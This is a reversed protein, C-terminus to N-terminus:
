TLLTDDVDEAKGEPQIAIKRLVKTIVDSLSERAGADLLSMCTQLTEDGHRLKLVAVLSLESNAKVYINKEKTGNVLMPIAAKLFEPALVERRGMYSCVRAVLQKVENSQHNMSRDAALYSLLSKHIKDKYENTYVTNPTEKLPLLHDNLTTALQEPSLWRTIAGVCGAAGTRTADESHSLMGLLSIHIPKRVADSMKDGAASVVGRLAQMMTERVAPDEVTKVATHLETFLPDARTHITILHGLATAAKLRVQRNGDNLAKLFTTQLQPLFQKLMVGVKALLIALTHLVAAKVGPPFRDGLIRILPGTIHVVSPQLSQATTLAIVEGLGQSAAEKVEPTGNLVAERFIPLIPTIGKPLCLGPLLAGPKLDSVAFKIAQRIDSVYIVQQSPDLTKTVASLADWSMQLVTQDTDTFLHILGRLLQPVHQSYDARTHTCFACLLTAAARRSEVKECRGVELLHDVIARIGVEDSVSLVVTQCYELEQLSGESVALATLLAPLIKHLYKTLAEGAVSALISLAKTNVPTATLQPVLYPLVVRSKIAMVQRLGDLTWEAIGPSPNNLQQLMPPLIDDLAKVGVTSHLSDFTKAAAQRVEPLPDCLAKRVTPVLSNVFTLVMDRSTSAMMESLGICVGQRQDPQDSELGRELIPIIEPLVREGLKRVLDGLTKAAVQRKDHSTSALCGLLLSFLTPLIERLTRPTNTVVVKWVHLAAQRVLLAVDSRGMYLGALVRNRRKLGLATIIAKHSQETGFNDDENATETSMKGSVGSIRYLLDGLLQVSSYRIRWNEDFLGKELEPLLLTIASDAYLNVIRQGAKLATDRVYENEDALAKLIPIIIEGIYPTFENTFVVPMYIFMMIYGDKVHPAIDTRQATTIIEPMLKHLKEVGLGGVVESLGQAAGSRDVSSAESTLTKMLWPLLDEFSSEGMGRVMAGLARASVSRVEPVPDLLSTKLGPIITPLYPTLDKQDTLSYMNGIIQAAMKRTETSRDMFARQVVPMILALSPADIFHVFQTDLLTQLCTATRNSPDQIEPNRIVSGILKLAQAGATQVKVHSDSLVEILKPVISPLCSSLQKPACYAMAGLLEVSGERHRYNKKDQIADTLTVMIDLQKLALIGMGKVIGALGYAAGKRQGLSESSLLQDLLKQVLAPAEEKISPVLAPLCNAVAKGHLDVAALAAALMNNRVQDNRDGLGKEVYFKALNSVSKPTLLPALQALALAVGNRPEWTDIPKEVIRGLSDVRAPVMNNKENYINLLLRLVLDTSPPQSQQLLAALANSGAQQVAIVPHVIDDLLSECLGKDAWSLNASQWLKDAVDRNEEVVDHKAVWVRRTIRLAQDRNQKPKPLVPVLACMSRLAADRVYQSSHQLAALLSDIEEDTAVACGEGGSAATAVDLLAASAQQQVRGITNSIVDILLLMMQRRPLIKPSHLDQPGGSSRLKAQTSLIHICTTLLPSTSSVSNITSQILPLVYSLGPATLGSGIKDLETIAWKMAKELDQQEWAPDLTCKPRLLRLTIHAVRDITVPSLSIGIFAPDKLVLYLQSLYKASLPSSLGRVTPPVIVPLQAGLPLPSGHCASIVIRFAKYLKEEAQTLRSRIAAEKELQLRMAEKQKPTLEPETIKGQKRKKDELEKRLAIEEQQEKFSYVKSERKINKNNITSDDKGSVVSKDYLEGPPCQFIAYEEESVNLLGPDLFVSTASKLLPPLMVDPNLATVTSLAAEYTPIPKFGTVLLEILKEQYQKIFKTSDLKFYKIINLWLRSQASAVTPHHCPLLSHFAIIKKDEKSLNTGSCMIMVADALHRPKLESQIVETGERNEKDVSCQIRNTLLMNTLEELLATAILTGHLSSFMRHLIPKCKFRVPQVTLCTVLARHLPAPNSAVREGDDMLIKECLVVVQCLTENPAQSLFKDSIFVQKDMDYIISYLSSLKSEFSDLTSLKLLLCAASLGETVISVQSPQAAAKEVSKLLLPIFEACQAASSSHCCASMVGIYATRVSSTSTKLSIGKELWSLVKPPVQSNFKSCWLSMMELCYILTKEHVEVELIKIFHEAASQALSQISSGTVANYSLNGIGQLISIKHTSVTIKGQSGNFIHFLHELLAEVPGSDSCQSALSRCAEVAAERGNDDKSYLSTAVTKGINLAYQSLDLSLNALVKSVTHLALEPNRLMAKQLAPLLIESFENHLLLLLLPRCATVVYDKVKVKSGVIIKVFQDLLKLKHLVVLDTHKNEVLFKIYYSGFVVSHISEPLCSLGVNYLTLNLNNSKWMQALMHHAKETKKKYGAEIITSYLVAQANVINQFEPKGEDKCNHLACNILISSWSLAFLASQATSKTPATTANIRAADSLTPTLHKMTWDPHCTCLAKILSNVFSQSTVDRYRPLTMQLVKCLGRVVAESFGPCSLVSEVNQLVKKRESRSATQIRLPLDKLAKALLGAENIGKQELLEMIGHKNETKYPCGHVDLPGPSAELIKKCNLPPYDAQKGVKGYCHRIHYLYKKKFQF